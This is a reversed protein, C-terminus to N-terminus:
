PIWSWLEVFLFRAIARTFVVLVISWGAEVKANGTMGTKLENDPDALAVQVRVVKGYGIEEEREEAAPAIARVVGEFSSNPFAWPKLSAEADIEIDGISSEPLRIDALLQSTDEITALQDGRALYSGRAFQLQSSVVRGDIPAAIRTYALEQQAYDFEAKARKVEAELGQIREVLAASGVLELQREAEMLQQRAVDAAGRAREFELPTVSKGRYATAVRKANSEALEAAARATAVRSRAVEIEEDRAGKRLLALEASLRTFEAETGAVKAQQEADDLRAIVQGAKVVDGEQVLVERVDGAVLARVDARDSPLVEFDGSVGYPYPLVCIVAVIWALTKQRPTPRWPKRLHGMTSREVAVRSYQKVMYVGMVSLLALFGTGHFRESLWGGVAWLLVVLLAVVFALSALGFVFLARYPLDRTPTSWGRRQRLGRMAGIARERLDPVSLANSLLFYGDYRTLPNLRLALSVATVITLGVCFRAIALQTEAFLFWILISLAAPAATGILGSGVIRMRDARGAREAAGATDVFLRPIRLPGYVFGIRPQEPTYRAIAAARASMSFFNVLIAGIVATAIARYSGFLGATMSLWDLRHAILLALAMLCLALFALLRARSQVPWILLNGFAVFLGPALPVDIQNAQGRAGTVLGTLGGTLGANARSGPVSSPPLAYAPQAALTPVGGLWGLAQLEADSHAPPPLTEHTGRRMLRRQALEAVFGELAGASIARGSQLALAHISAADRTGDHWQALAYDDASLRVPVADGDGQAWLEIEGQLPEARACVFQRYRPRSM